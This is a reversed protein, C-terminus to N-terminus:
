ITSGYTNSQFISTPRVTNNNNLVNNALSWVFRGVGSGLAAEKGAADQALQYQRGIQPCLYGVSGAVM